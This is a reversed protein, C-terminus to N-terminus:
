TTPLRPTGRAAHWFRLIYLASPPHRLEYIIRYSGHVIERVEPDGIEPTVCGIEPFQGLKLSADILANGFKKARDSSDTAIHRVIESLDDIATPTIIVPVGM